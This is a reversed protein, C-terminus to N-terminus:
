PCKGAIRAVGPWKIYGPGGATTDRVPSVGTPVPPNSFQQVEVLVLDCTIVGDAAVTVTWEVWQSILDVFASDDPPLPIGPRGRLDARLVVKGKKQTGNCPVTEKLVLSAELTDDRSDPDGPKINTYKVPTSNVNAWSPQNTESIKYLPGLVGADPNNPKGAM